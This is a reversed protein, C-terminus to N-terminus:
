ELMVYTEDLDPSQCIWQEPDPYRLSVDNLSLAIYQANISAAYQEDETLRMARVIAPVQMEEDIFPAYVSETFCSVLTIEFNFSLLAQMLGGCSLAIDDPHPSLAAIRAGRGLNIYGTFDAVSILSM